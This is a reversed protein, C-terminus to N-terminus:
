AYSQLLDAVAPPNALPAQHCTPLEVLEAGAIRAAMRRQRAPSFLRDDTLVVYSVPCSLDEQLNFPARMVQTPLPGFFGLSQVIEMTDMGNCFNRSVYRSPVALEKGLARSMLGAARFWGRCGGSLESIVSKSAAPVVGGMLVVRKPPSPLEPVAQLALPAALGHAVVVLDRLNQRECSGVIAQVCEDVSVASTDGALDAGHGPLDLPFVKGVKRHAYLRPPHEEPSTMLGWVKGWCWAGQGLSHVLLFDTM